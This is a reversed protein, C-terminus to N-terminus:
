IHTHMCTHWCTEESVYTYMNVMDCRHFDSFLKQSNTKKEKVIGTMPILHMNDTKAAFAKQLYIVTSTRYIYNKIALHCKQINEKGSWLCSEM